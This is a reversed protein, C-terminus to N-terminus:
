IFPYIHVHLCSYIRISLSFFCKRIEGNVGMMDERAETMIMIVMMDETMAMTITMVANTTIMLLMMVIGIVAATIIEIEIDMMAVLNQIVAIGVPNVNVHDSNEETTATARENQICVNGHLNQRTSLKIIKIIKKMFVGLVPLTNTEKIACRKM